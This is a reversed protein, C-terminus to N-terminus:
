FKAYIPRPALGFCFAFSYNRVPLRSSVFAPFPPGPSYYRFAGTMVMFLINLFALIEGPSSLTPLLRRSRLLSPLIRSQLPFSQSLPIGGM